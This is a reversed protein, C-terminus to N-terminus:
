APAGDIDSERPPFCLECLDASEASDPIAPLVDREAADDLNCAEPSAVRGSGTRWGRHIRGGRVRIVVPQWDIM